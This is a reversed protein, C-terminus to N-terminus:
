IPAGQLRADIVSLRERANSLFPHVSLAERLFLAAQQDQGLDDMIMGIGVLAGFHRPQLRLVREVDAISGAYDDRMFHVTARRNWGEAYDPALAIVTDLLDLAVPFNSSGMAIGARLMLLDVAESGSRNWLGQIERALIDAAQGDEAQALADLLVGAIVLPDAPLGDSASVSADDASDAPAELFNPSTANPAPSQALVQDAVVQDAFVPKAFAPLALAVFCSLALLVLPKLRKGAPSDVLRKGAPSDILLAFSFFRM